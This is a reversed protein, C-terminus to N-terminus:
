NRATEPPMRLKVVGMGKGGGVGANLGHRKEDAAPQKKFHLFSKSTRPAFHRGRLARPSLSEPDTWDKQTDHM